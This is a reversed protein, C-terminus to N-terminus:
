RRFSPMKPVDVSQPLAVCKDGPLELARCEEAISFNLGPCLKQGLEMVEQPNEWLFPPLHTLRLQGISYRSLMEFLRAPNFHALECMMFDVPRDLLPILDEPAGIDSSHVMYRHKSRIGFAFCDFRLPYLHHFQDRLSNLHTTRVPIITHAGITFEERDRIPVFELKFPMLEKFLCAVQILSEVVPIGDAPMYVKLNKRRERLWLGQLFMLFGGFHDGHFHSLLIADFEDYSFGANLYTRSLPEGCDVLIPNVELRYLFSSHNREKNPWGDGVGFCYIYADPTSSDM